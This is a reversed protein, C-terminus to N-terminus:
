SAEFPYIPPADKQVVCMVKFLAGMQDADSLRASGALFDSQADGNLKAALKETRLEIGMAKLFQSQTLVPLVDANFAKGLAEFDVHATLDAEGPTELIDCFGHAKVAQLTDGAASKFHGYDIILAAGDYQNVHKGLDGAIATSVSSVEFVGEARLEQDALALGLKLKGEQVGVAREFNQGGRREFQRIPLADFFENAIILSPLAPLSAVTDHWIVAGGLKAKQAARLVPSMDVLHVEAAALFEPAAKAARLLDAMLTGRGPGLEVLAFKAPSGLAAWANVCWVGILEGFVQSIEPATTFDGAAGFPDRRMYYGHVPHGLCLAMYRDLGIPGEAEIMEIIIKELTSV